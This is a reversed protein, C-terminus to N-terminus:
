SLSTSLNRSRDFTFFGATLLAFTQYNKLAKLLFHKPPIHHQLMSWAKVSLEEHCPEMIRLNIRLGAMM